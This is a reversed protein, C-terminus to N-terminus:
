YGKLLSMLVQWFITFMGTDGKQVFSDWLALKKIFADTKNRLAFIKTCFGPCWAQEFPLIYGSFVCAWEGVNCGFSIRSISLEKRKCVTKNRGQAWFLPSLVRGRSLCRRYPSSTWAALGYVKVCHKWEPTWHDVEFKMSLKRRM